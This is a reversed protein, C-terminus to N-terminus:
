AIRGRRRNQCRRRSKLHGSVGLVALALGTLLLTSPEPVSSAGLVAFASLSQNTLVAPVPNEVEVTGNVAPVAYYWNVSQTQVVPIPAELELWYVTGTTLQAHNTSAATLLQPSSTVGHFTFTDFQIGAVGGVDMRIAFTVDGLSGSLPIVISDMTDTLMSTFQMEVSVITGSLSSSATWFLGPTFGPTASGDTSYLVSTCFAAPTILAPLVYRLIRSIRMGEM